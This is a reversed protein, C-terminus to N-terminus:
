FAGGYPGYANIHFAINNNNLSGGNPEYYAMVLGDARDPSKSQAHTHEKFEDKSEIKMVEYGRKGNIYSWKRTFLQILLEEDYPIDAIDLKDRMNFYMETACDEYHERDVPTGGFNIRNVYYGDDELMDAVAAGISGNDININANRGAFTKLDLATRTSSQYKSVYSDIIKGSLQKYFTIEDGGQHAIDAGVTPVGPPVRFITRKAAEYVLNEPCVFTENIDALEGEWIHRARALDRKYDALMEDYLSRPFWPNDRWSLFLTKANDDHARIYDVYVPDSMYRPNFDWWFVADEKRITPRLIDISKRSIAQSEAVWCRDAGELSKINDSNQDKLGYFAFETGNIGKIGTNTVRYFYHLGYLDITDSLLKQVSHKISLQVERVCVIFLKKQMGEVLLIRCISWSAGKGRGGYIIRHRANCNEVLAEQVKPIIEIVQTM